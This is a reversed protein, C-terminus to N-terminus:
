GGRHASGSGDGEAAAAARVRQEERASGVDRELPTRSLATALDELAQKQMEAGRRVVPGGDETAAGKWAHLAEEVRAWQPNRHERVDVAAQATDAELAEALREAEPVPRSDDRRRGPRRCAPGAAPTDGMLVSQWPLGWHRAVGGVGLSSATVVTALLLLRQWAGDGLIQRGPPRPPRRRAGPAVPEAGMAVGTLGHTLLNIWLIQRAAPWGTSSSAASTRTSGGDRRWPRSWPRCSTTPSCWTPPRGPSRRAADAWPSAMDAQRLAPGDNVGDGTM